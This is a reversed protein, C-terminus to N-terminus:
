RVFGNHLCYSIVALQSNVNPISALNLTTLKLVALSNDLLNICLCTEHLKDSLIFYRDDNFNLSYMKYLEKFHTFTNSYKLAHM